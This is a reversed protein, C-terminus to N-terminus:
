EEDLIWELADAFEAFFRREQHEEKAVQANVQKISFRTSVDKPTIIARKVDWYNRSFEISMKAAYEQDESSIVKHEAIDTITKKVKHEIMLQFIKDIGARFEQSSTFGNWIVHLFDKDQHLIIQLYPTQYLITEM